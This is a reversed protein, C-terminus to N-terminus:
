QGVLGGARYLYEARTGRLEPHHRGRVRLEAGCPPRGRAPGCRLRDPRVEDGNDGIRIILMGDGFTLKRDLDEVAIGEGFVLTNGADVTATDDIIDVGDGVNFLYRDDGAGGTLYDDGLGGALTDAGDNGTIRDTTATGTLTDDASTGTIDFGRDIIEEYLLIEGTSFQFYEVAHTGYPDNADFGTFVLADGASGMNMILTGNASSPLSGADRGPTSLTINEPTIGAGLILMNPDTATSTDTITDVGDGVNYRYTDDGTGGVLTDAGENGIFLDRAATGILTDPDATGEIVFGLDLLDTSSLVTGDAFRFTEVTVTNYPDDPNFGELILADDGSSGVRIVLGNDQVGLSLDWSNIGAGFEISNGAGPAPADM